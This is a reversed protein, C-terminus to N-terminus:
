YGLQAIFNQSEIEKESFFPSTPRNGEISYKGISEQRPSPCPSLTVSATVQAGPVAHGALGKRPTNHYTYSSSSM